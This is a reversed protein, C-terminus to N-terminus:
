KTSLTTDVTCHGFRASSREMDAHKEHRDRAENKHHGAAIANQEKSAKRQGIHNGGIFNQGFNRLRGMVKRGIRNQDDPEAMQGKHELLLEDIAIAEEVAHQGERM